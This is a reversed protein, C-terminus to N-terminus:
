VNGNPHMAALRIVGLADVARATAEDAVSSGCGHKALRAIAVKAIALDYFPGFSAITFESPDIPSPTMVYWRRATLTNNM